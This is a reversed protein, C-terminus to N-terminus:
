KTFMERPMMKRPAASCCRQISPRTSTTIPTASSEMAARRKWLLTMAVYAPCQQRDVSRIILMCNCSEFPLLSAKASGTFNVACAFAAPQAAFSLGPVSSEM